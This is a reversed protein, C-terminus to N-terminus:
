RSLLKTPKIFIHDFSVDRNANDSVARLTISALM